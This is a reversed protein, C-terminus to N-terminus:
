TNNQLLWLVMASNQLLWLTKRNFWRWVTHQPDSAGYDPMSEIVLGEGLYSFFLLCQMKAAQQSCKQGQM